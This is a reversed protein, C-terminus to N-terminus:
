RDENLVALPYHRKALHDDILDKVMASRMLHAKSEIEELSMWVAEIIGDDLPQEPQHKLPEGVFGHRLYTVNNPAQYRYMGLYQTIEVEWGTEELTERKAADILSENAELHGAPQNYVPKGAPTEHVLLFKGDKEVLTAVTVHPTWRTTTEVHKNEPATNESM